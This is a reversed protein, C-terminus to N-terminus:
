PDQMTTLQPTPQLCLKSGSNNDSQHLDAAVARILGRVQSSGYAVPDARSFVFLCFFLIHANLSSM